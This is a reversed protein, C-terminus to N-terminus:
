GCREEYLYVCAKGTENAAHLPYIRNPTTVMLVNQRKLDNRYSDVVTVVVSYVSVFIDAYLRVLANSCYRPPHSWPTCKTSSTRVARNSHGRARGDRADDLDRGELGVLRRHVDADVFLACTLM